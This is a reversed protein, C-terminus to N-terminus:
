FIKDNEKVQKKKVMVTTHEYSYKVYLKKKKSYAPKYGKDFVPRFFIDQQVYLIIGTTPMPTTGLMKGYYIGLKYRKM